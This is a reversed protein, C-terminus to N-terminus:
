WDKIFFPEVNASSAISISVPLLPNVTMSVPSSVAPSGTACTANSTVECTVVDGNLPIYSYVSSNLGANVGNVKWLYVPSSGGNVAMATFTVMTGACVPDASPVVTISVPLLPNVTMTIPASIAPNGTACTANSILECTIMDGNV